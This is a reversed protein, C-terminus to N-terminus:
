LEEELEQIEGDIELLLKESLDLLTTLRKKREKLYKIREERQGVEFNTESHQNEDTLSRIVITKPIDIDLKKALDLWEENSSKIEEAAEKLCMGILLRASYDIGLSLELWENIDESASSKKIEANTLFSYFNSTKDPNLKSITEFLLETEELLRPRKRFVDIHKWLALIAERCKEEAEQKKRGKSNKVDTMLDSVHHAMWRGLTDVSQDFDLEKVLLEGLKLIESFQKLKAM